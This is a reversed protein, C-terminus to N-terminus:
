QKNEKMKEFVSPKGKPREALGTPAEVRAKSQTKRRRLNARLQAALREKKLEDKTKQKESMM